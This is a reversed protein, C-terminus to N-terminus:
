SRSVGLALLSFVFNWYFIPSVCVCALLRVRRAPLCRLRASASRSHRQVLFRSVSTSPSCCCHSHANAAVVLPPRGLGLLPMIKGGAGGGARGGRGGGRSVRSGRRGRQGGSRRRRTSPTSTRTPGAFGPSCRKPLARLSLTVLSSSSSSPLTLHSVWQESLGACESM